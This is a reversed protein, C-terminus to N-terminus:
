DIFCIAAAISVFAESRGFQLAIYRLKIEGSFLCMAVVIPVLLHAAEGNEVYRAIVHVSVKRLTEPQLDLPVASAHDTEKM